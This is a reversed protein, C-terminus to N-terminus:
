TFIFVKSDNDTAWGSFEGRNKSILELEPIQIGKYRIKVFVLLTIWPWSCLLMYLESWIAGIHWGTSPCTGPTKPCTLILGTSWCCPSSGQTELRQRKLYSPPATKHRPRPMLGQCVCDDVIFFSWTLNRFLILIYIYIYVYVHM